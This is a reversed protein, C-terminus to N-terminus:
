SITVGVLDTVNLREGLGIQRFSILKHGGDVHYMDVLKAFVRSGMKSSSGLVSDCPEVLFMMSVMVSAM